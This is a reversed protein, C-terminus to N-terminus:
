QKAKQKSGNIQMAAMNSKHLNSWTEGVLTERQLRSKM